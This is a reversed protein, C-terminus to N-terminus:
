ESLSAYFLWHREWFRQLKVVLVNRGARLKLPTVFEDKRVGKENPVYGVESGNLWIQAQSSAGFHLTAKHATPSQVVATAYVVDGVKAETNAGLNVIPLGTSAAKVETWDPKPLQDLQDEPECAVQAIPYWDTNSYRPSVRWVRLDQVEQPSDEVRGPDIVLTTVAWGTAGGFTFDLKGDSTSVSFEREILDGRDHATDLLQIEGNVSVMGSVLFNRNTWAPNSTVIRITYEGSPVDVRLRQPTGCSLNMKLPEPLSERYPWFLTQSASIETTFKGGYKQAMAYYKEEPTPVSNDDQPLWGFGKDQSYATDAGVARWQERDQNGGFDLALIAGDADASKRIGEMYIRHSMQQVSSLLEEASKAYVGAEGKAMGRVSDARDALSGWDGDCAMEARAMMADGRLIASRKEDLGKRGIVLIGYVRVSPINVSVKQGEVDMDMKQRNGDLTFWVAEEPPVNEPLSIDIRAPQTPAAEGSEFDVDYNVFHFSIFGDSNEWTKVWLMRPLNGTLITQSDLAKRTHEVAIQTLERSADSEEQRCPLFSRDPLIDLVKGAKRWKELPSKDRPINDENRIGCQGIIGLTGGSQLYQTLLEIQSDALCELHPLIILRYRKLEQLNVRDASIEPHRLLVVDFPLHGESLARAIGSLASVPPAAAGYQYNYYMMTPVSYAIAVQAYPRNYLSAFLARHEQRFTFYETMKQQLHDKEQFHLQNVFLVGGGACAEAMEHEVIDPSRKHFRTMSMFPREGQTMARGISYRFSGWANNWNYKFIDYASLGSSEFWVTDVFDSLAIQYPNPGIFGGGQNGHVDYERGLRGALLKADRYYRVFNHLHSIYLFKQYESMVPPSCLKALLEAEQADFRHRTQPPLQQLVDTFNDRVYDRIHSYKERFDPLRDNIKLYHFFKANCYDCYRGHGGAGIRSTPGGINDQSIAFGLLPSTLWDYNIISSWRPANNCVIYADWGIKEKWWQVSTNYQPSLVREDNMDRAIGNDWLLERAGDEHFHITEQYENSGYVEYWIGHHNPYEHTTYDGSRDIYDVLKWNNDLWGGRREPGSRGEGWGANIIHPWWKVPERDQDDFMRLEAGFDPFTVSVQEDAEPIVGVAGKVCFNSLFILFALCVFCRM